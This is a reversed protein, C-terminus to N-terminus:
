SEMILIGILKEHSVKDFAKAFNLLVLGVSFGKNVEDTIIDLTELLSTFCAKTLVFVTIVASQGIIRGFCNVVKKIYQLSTPRVGSSQDERALPNTM